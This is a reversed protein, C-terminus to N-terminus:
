PDDLQASLGWQAWKQYLGPPGNRDASHTMFVARLTVYKSTHTVPSTQSPALFPLRPSSFVGGIRDSFPTPDSGQDVRAGVRSQVGCLRAPRPM